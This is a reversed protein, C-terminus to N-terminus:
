ADTTFLNDDSYEKWESTQFIRCLVKVDKSSEFGGGLTTYEHQLIEFDHSEDPYNPTMWSFNLGFFDLKNCTLNYNFDFYGDDNKIRM